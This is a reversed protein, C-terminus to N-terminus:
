QSQFLNKGKTEPMIFVTVFTGMICFGAYIYMCGYLNIIEVLPPYVKLNVFAFTTILAMCIMVTAERIKQPVLETVIMFPLSSIGISNLFITFSLSVIPIWNLNNSVEFNIDVYSYSALALLSLGSGLCSVSMLIKRGFKDVFLSAIYIGIFQISAVIMSSENASLSSGSSKFIDATYSLIIMNGSFSNIFILFFSMILGRRSSREVFDKLKVDKKHVNLINTRLAEYEATVAEVNQSDKENCNRYFKLSKLAKEDKHNRLLHQPTEPLLFMLFFYLVLVPIMVLPITFYNLYAGFVFMFFIGIYMALPFYAGLKGRISSEAIEGIYLPVIRLLGGNTIGAIIRAIYLHIVDTSLYTMVWFTLNPLCLFILCKKKGFYEALKGFVLISVLAGASMLSGIWSAETADIPGSKLHTEDSKLYPIMPSTWGVTSGHIIALINVIFTAIYQNSAGQAIWPFKVLM